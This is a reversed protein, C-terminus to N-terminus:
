QNRTKLITNTRSSALIWCKGKWAGRTLKGIVSDRINEISEKKKEELLNMVLQFLVEGLVNRM